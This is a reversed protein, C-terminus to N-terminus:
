LFFLITALLILTLIGAPFLIQLVIIYTRISVLSTPVSRTLSIKTIYPGPMLLISSFYSSFPLRCWNLATVSIFTFGLTFKNPFATVSIFVPIVISSYVRTSAVIATLFFYYTIYCCTLPM